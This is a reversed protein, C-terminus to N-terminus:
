PGSQCFEAARTQMIIEVRIRGPLNLVSPETAAAGEENCDARWCM